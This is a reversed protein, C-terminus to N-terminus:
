PKLCCQGPPFEAFHKSKNDIKELFLHIDIDIVFDIDYIEQNILYDRIAGGVIWAKANASKVINFITKVNEDKHM